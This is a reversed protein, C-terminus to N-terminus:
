EKIIKLSKRFSSNFVSIIYTGKTMASINVTAQYRCNTLERILQGTTSYIRVTYYSNNSLAVNFEDTTVSPWLFVEPEGSYDSKKVYLYIPRSIVTGCTGTVTTLYVGIDSANLDHLDLGAVNSNGLLVDDKQWQYILNHGVASVELTIDGGFPVQVDPTIFNIATVTYVTLNMLGSSITGCYGSIECVYSGSDDATSPSIILQASPGDQLIIENRYWKYSLNYGEAGVKLTIPQGACITTDRSRNLLKTKPAVKLKLGSWDSVKNDITVRM